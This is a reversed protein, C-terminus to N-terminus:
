FRELLEKRKGDYEERTILGQNYLSELKKLKKEIDDDNTEDKAYGEYYNDDEEVVIEHTPIGEDSFGNKYNVYTIYVAVGTWLIGFPGVTPIAVFIGILIFIIGVVFGMKAQTKSTQVKIKKKSM